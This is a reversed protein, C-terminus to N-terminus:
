FSFRKLRLYWIIYVYYKAGGQRRSVIHEAVDNFIKNGSEATSFEAEDCYFKFVTKDDVVDGIVQVAYPNDFPMEPLRM